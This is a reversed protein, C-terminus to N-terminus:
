EILRLPFKGSSGGYGMPQEAAGESRAAGAITRERRMEDRFGDRSEFGLWTMVMM